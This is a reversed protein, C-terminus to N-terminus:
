RCNEDWHPFLFDSLVWKQNILSVLDAMSGIFNVHAHPKIIKKKCKCACKVTYSNKAPSSNKAVATLYSGETIVLWKSHTYNLNWPYLLENADYSLNCNTSINSGLIFLSFYYM